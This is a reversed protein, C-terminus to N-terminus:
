EMDKRWFLIRGCNECKVISKGAKTMSVIMSPLNVRCGSCNQGKITVIAIGQKNRKLEEYLDLHEKDIKEIIQERILEQEFIEEEIKDAEVNYKLLKQKYEKKKLGLKDKKKKIVVDLEEIKEIMELSRNEANEKEKKIKEMQKTLQEMEKLNKIEGSYLKKELDSTKSVLDEYGWETKQFSKQLQSLKRKLKNLTEECDSIQAKSFQLEEKTKLENFEKNLKKIKLDNTQLKWLEYLFDM